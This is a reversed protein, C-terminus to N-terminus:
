DSAGDDEKEEKSQELIAKLVLKALGDIICEISIDNKNIDMALGEEYRYYSNIIKYYGSIPEKSDVSTKM